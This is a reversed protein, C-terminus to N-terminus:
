NFLLHFKQTRNSKLEAVYFDPKVAFRGIDVDHPWLMEKKARMKSVVSGDDPRRVVVADAEVTFLLDLRQSYAVSSMHKLYPRDAPATAAETDCEGTSSWIAKLGGIRSFIQIRCNERDAVYVQKRTSDFAISHVINFYGPRSGRGKGFERLFSGDQSSFVAVRSNGYGDSVYVEDLKEDVAVDTPASFHSRDNGPLNAHGLTLLVEGNKAEIKFVQHLATDTVWLFGNADCHLGHPSVFLKEGFSRVVRGTVHNIVFVTESPIKEKAIFGNRRRVLIYIHRGDSTVATASNQGLSVPEPLGTSVDFEGGPAFYSKKPPNPTNEESCVRSVKSHHGPFFHPYFLLYQNCM